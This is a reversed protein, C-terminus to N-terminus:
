EKNTGSQEIRIVFGLKKKFITLIFDLMTAGGIGALLSLGFLYPLNDTFMQYGMLAIIAGIFGSNMMAAAVARATLAKGTRLQNALGAFSAGFFALLGIVWPDSGLGRFVDLVREPM